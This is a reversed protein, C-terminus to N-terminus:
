VERACHRRGPIGATTTDKIKVFFFYFFIGNTVSYSIKFPQDVVHFFSVPVVSIPGDVLQAMAMAM